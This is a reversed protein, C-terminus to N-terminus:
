KTIPIGRREKIGNLIYQKLEPVKNKDMEPVGELRYPIGLEDYKKKGM